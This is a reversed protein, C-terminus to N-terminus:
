TGTPLAALAAAAREAALALAKDSGDKQIWEQPSLGKLEDHQSSNSWSAIVLPDATGLSEDFIRLLDKVVPRVIGRDLDFQWTPFYTTRRGPIALLSRHRVRKAVAQRSIGLLECVQTTDFVDDAVARWQLPALVTRAAQRGLEEADDDALSALMESLHPRADLISEIEKEFGEHIWSMAERM